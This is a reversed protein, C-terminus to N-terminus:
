SRSLCGGPVEFVVSEYGPVRTGKKVRIVAFNGNISVSGPSDVSKFVGCELVWYVTYDYDAVAPGYFNEYVNVGVRPRFPIVIFFVASSRVPVGRVEIFASLVRARVDVGNIVIREEDMLRQMEFRLREVESELRVGGERLLGWYEREVDSYDFVITYWIVGSLSVHFFGEGYVPVAM